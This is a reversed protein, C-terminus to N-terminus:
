QIYKLIYNTLDLQGCYAFANILRNERLYHVDSNSLSIGTIYLCEREDDTENTRKSVVLIWKLTLDTVETIDSSKV